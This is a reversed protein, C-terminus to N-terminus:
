AAVASNKQILSELREIRAKWSHAAHTHKAGAEAIAKREEEHELYYDIKAFLDDTDNWSVAQKGDEFHDAFSPFNDALLMAGCATARMARDSCFGPLHFHEASVAIKCTRYAAAESEENLWVDSAGWGNGFVSFHDGYRVKLAIAAKARFDSRPFVSPYNNLMAVIEPTGSRKPGDTAFCPSPTGIQLYDAIHRAQRMNEVDRMNSFLMLDMQPARQFYHRSTALRCDGCWEVKIGPIQQLTTPQLIGDTQLQFFVHTPNFRKALTVLDARLQMIRRPHYPMWSFEEYHRSNARLAERLCTQPSQPTILAVHLLRELM